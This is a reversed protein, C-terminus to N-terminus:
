GASVGKSASKHQHEAAAKALAQIDDAIMHMGAVRLRKVVDTLAASEAGKKHM